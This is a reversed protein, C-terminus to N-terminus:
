VWCKGAWCGRQSLLPRPHPSVRLIAWKRCDALPFSKTEQKRQLLSPQVFATQGSKTLHGPNLAFNTPSGGFLAAPQLFPAALPQCLPSSVLSSFWWKTIKHMQAIELHSNVMAISLCCLVISISVSVLICWFSTLKQETYLEHSCHSNQLFLHRNCM